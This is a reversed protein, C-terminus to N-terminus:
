IMWFSARWSTNQKWMKNYLKIWVMYIEGNYSLMKSKTKQDAPKFILFKSTNSSNECGKAFCSTDMCDGSSFSIISKNRSADAMTKFLYPFWKNDMLLAKKCEYM